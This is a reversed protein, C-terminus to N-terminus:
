FVHRILYVTLMAAGMFTVTAAMSRRSRRALGCVGHGSTCGNALAVGWGVFLGALLLIPMSVNLTLSPLQYGAVSLVLPGCLLGVLFAFRWLRESINNKSFLLGRCMGSVGAIRGNFLMLFAAALGILVGGLLASYPTFNQM